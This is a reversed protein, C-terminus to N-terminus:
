PRADGAELDFFKAWKGKGLNEACCRQVEEAEEHTMYWPFRRKLESILADGKLPRGNHDRLQRM